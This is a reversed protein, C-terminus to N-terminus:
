NLMSMLPPSGNSFWRSSSPCCMAPYSLSCVLWFNSLPLKCISKGSLYFNLVSQDWLSFWHLFFLYLKLASLQSLSAILWRVTMHDQSLSAILWRFAMHDQSLSAILWRFTMHDQSLSAILWRVTVHDCLRYKLHLITAVYLPLTVIGLAVSHSCCRLNLPQKLARSTSVHSPIFVSILWQNLNVSLKFNWNTCVM